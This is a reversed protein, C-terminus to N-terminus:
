RSTQRLGRQAGLPLEYRVLEPHPPYVSRTREDTPRWGLREYFRCARRNGTFVRLWARPVGRDRMGHVVLDHAVGALGTGWHEVAIGFHLFEDGRVAVFGAVEGGREVVRSDIAPDALEQLWRGAVDDRPFPHEDQPFVDALARVAGAEQVAVVDPVDGAVMPRLGYLM